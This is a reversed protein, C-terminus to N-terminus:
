SVVGATKKDIATILKNAVMEAVKTAQEESTDGAVVISGREFVVHVGHGGAGAVPGTRTANAPTVTVRERRRHGEGAIFATPGNTTFSGGNAFAGAWAVPGGRSYWGSRQEHSWAGAPSGYRRRIYGLGWGIQAAPDGGAAAAGMKGPPLGQPIGFAGSSPNRATNSWGSERTWLRDLFPWQDAGFGAAMMMRRGLSRNSAANGGGAFGALAGGGYASLRRNVMRQLGRAYLDGARARVAGPLGGQRM